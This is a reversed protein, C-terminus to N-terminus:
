NGSIYKQNYKAQLLQIRHFIQTQRALQEANLKQIYEHTTIVGNALQAEASKTVSARLDIAEEDQRILATYKKVHEDQQALDLNINLLFTERDADVLQRNLRLNTKKNSLSYLSNLSWNFRLGTIYWPGFENKIINLTPRGYAGQFFLSVEPLYQSKLQKEQVGYIRKQLEFAKLEPRNIGTLPTEVSPVILKTGSTLEKGTFLSLMRLYGTRNSQYEEIIMEINVIEARLEELSSRFAVGNKIAADAKDAQTQLNIKNLEYQKLQADILLITFYINNVRQNLTYLNSQVNQEQLAANARILEKQNRTNGGDYLLQSVDGQIRYQDKSITPLTVGPFGGIADSFSLTQSQYTAQGSFSVQPLFRKGANEIDYESTRSILDLKRISPYNSRAYQYAEDLTLTTVQGNSAAVLAVGFLITLLVKFYRYMTSLNSLKLNDENVGSLIQFISKIM